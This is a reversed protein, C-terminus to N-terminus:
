KIGLQLEGPHCRPPVQTAGSHCRPPLQTAAPHCRWPVVMAGPHCIPPVPTAAPYGGVAAFLLDPNTKEQLLGSRRIGKAKGQKAELEWRPLRPLTREGIILGKLISVFKISSGAPMGGNEPFDPFFVAKKGPSTQTLLAPLAFSFM